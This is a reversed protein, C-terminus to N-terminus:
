RLSLHSSLRPPNRKVFGEAREAGRGSPAFPLTRQFLLERRRADRACFAPNATTRSGPSLNWLFKAACERKEEGEEEGEAGEETRVRGEQGTCRTEGSHFLEFFTLVLRPCSRTQFFESFIYSSVRERQIVERRERKRRRGDQRRDSTKRTEAACARAIVASSLM